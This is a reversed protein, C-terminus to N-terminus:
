GSMETYLWARAFQWDRKATKSTYGLVEGIEEFNLGGFYRLEVVQAARANKVALRGLLEDIVLVEVTNVARNTAGAEDFEMVLAGAGRKASRKGRAHDVLIRRMAESAVALFHAKGQWSISQQRVLHLFVEGVLATPQLTHDLRERRMRQAALRRLEPYIIEFLHERAKPERWQALLATIDQGGAKVISNEGLASDSEKAFQDGHAYRERKGETL